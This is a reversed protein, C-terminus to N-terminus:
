FPQAGRGTNAGALRARRLTFQPQAGGLLRIFSAAGTSLADTVCGCETTYFETQSGELEAGCSLRSGNPLAHSLMGSSSSM